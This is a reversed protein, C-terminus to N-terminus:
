HLGIRHLGARLNTVRQVAANFAAPGLQGSILAGALATVVAQGETLDQASCLLLDMGARAALVARQGHSGFSVLAGAEIADTITVGQYGLRGRLQGQIVGPSLGAPRTADLVTLGRYSFVVRQGALQAPTLTPQAQATRSGSCAGALSVAGLALMKKLAGRRDHDVREGMRGAGANAEGSLNEGGPAQM